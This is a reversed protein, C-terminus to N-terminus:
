FVGLFLGRSVANVFVYAGGCWASHFYNFETTKTAPAESFHATFRLLVHAALMYICLCVRAEGM